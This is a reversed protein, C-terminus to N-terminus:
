PQSTENEQPRLTIEIRRNQARGAATDNSAVPSFEGYSTAVMREGPVGNEEMLRVVSTARAGALEWNSPYRDLLGTSIAVNDSFGAVQILYAGKKLDVVIKKIIEEGSANLKASGSPFLVEQALNVKIGNKLLEIKVQNTEMEKSFQSRLSDFTSKQRLTEAKAAAVAAEMRKKDVESQQQLDSKETKVADIQSQLNSKDQQLTQNDQQLTQKQQANKQIQNDLEQVLAKHTGSSVCGGLTLVLSLVGAMIMIIRLSPRKNDAKMM